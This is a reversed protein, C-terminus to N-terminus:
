WNVCVNNCWHTIEAMCPVAEEWQSCNITLYELVFHCVLMSRYKFQWGRGMICRKCNYHSQLTVEYWHLVFCFLCFFTEMVSEIYSLIWVHFFM